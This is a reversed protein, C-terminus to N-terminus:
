VDHTTTKNSYENFFMSLFLCQSVFGEIFVHVFWKENFLLMYLSVIKQLFVFQKSVKNM